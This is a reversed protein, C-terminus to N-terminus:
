CHPINTTRAPVDHAASRLLMDRMHRRGAARDRDRAGIVDVEAQRVWLRRCHVDFCRRGVDVEIVVVLGEWREREGCVGEAMM